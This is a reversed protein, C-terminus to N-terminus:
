QRRPDKVELRQPVLTRYFEQSTENWVVASTKRGQAQWLKRVEQLVRQYEPSVTAGRFEYLPPGAWKRPRFGPFEGRRIEVTYRRHDLRSIRGARLESNFFSSLAALTKQELEVRAAELAPKLIYRAYVVRQQQEHRWAGSRPIPIEPGALHRAYQDRTVSIVNRYSGMRRELESMIALEIADFEARAAMIKRATAPDFWTRLLAPAPVTASASNGPAAAESKLPTRDDRGGFGRCGAATTVVMCLAM